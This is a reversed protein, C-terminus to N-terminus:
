KLSVSLYKWTDDKSPRELIKISVQNWDFTVWYAIKPMFQPSLNLIVTLQIIANQPVM